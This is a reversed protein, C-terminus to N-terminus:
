DLIEVKIQRAGWAKAETKSQMWMDFHYPSTHKEHLRDKIIFIKEGFLEPFRVKTGFPLYQHAMVGDGTRDGSATIFPDGSTEDPSSSYATVTTYFAKKVRYQKVKIEPLTKDWYSLQSDSSYNVRKMSQNGLQIAISYQPLLWSSLSVLAVIPM